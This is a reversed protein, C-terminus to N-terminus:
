AAGGAAARTAVLRFGGPLEGLLSPVEVPNNRGLNHLYASVLQERATAWESLQTSFWRQADDNVDLALFPAARHLERLWTELAKKPAGNMAGGVFNGTAVVHRLAVRPEAVARTYETVADMTTHDDLMSGYEGVRAIEAAVELKEDRRRQDRKAWAATDAGALTVPDALDAAELDALRTRLQEITATITM